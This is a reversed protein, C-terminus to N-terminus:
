LNFLYNNIKKVVLILLKTNKLKGTKLHTRADRYSVADKWSDILQDTCGNIRDDTLGDTWEDM